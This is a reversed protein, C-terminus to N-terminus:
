AEELKVSDKPMGVTFVSGEGPKSKVVISGNHVQLLKAAIALGIGRGPQGSIDAGRKFLQFIREQDSDRIGPGDDGVDVYITSKDERIRLTLHCKDKDSYKIANNILNLLVHRMPIKAVFTDKKIESLITVECLERAKSVVLAEELVHMVEALEPSANARSVTHLYENIDTIIEQSRGGAKIIENLLNKVNESLESQHDEMIVEAFSTQHRIPAQLDHGIIYAFQDLQSNLAELQRKQLELHKVQLKLRLQAMVQKSLTQLAESQQETFSRPKMDYVCITGVPTGNASRLSAGSYAQIKPGDVVHPKDAFRQDKTADEVEFYGDDAAVTYTCFSDAVPAEEIPIGTVAKFWQREGDLFTIAAIPVECIQGALRVIEDFYPEPATDLIEYAQLLRKRDAETNDSPNPKQM